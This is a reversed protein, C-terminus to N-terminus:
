RTGETQAWCEGVRTVDGVAQEREGLKSGLEGVKKKLDALLKRLNVVEREKEGVKKRFNVMEREKEPKEVEKQVGGEKKREGVRAGM